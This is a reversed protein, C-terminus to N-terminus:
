MGFGLPALSTKFRVSLDTASFASLEAIIALKHGLVLMLSDPVYASNAEHFRYLFSSRAIFLFGTSGFDESTKDSFDLPSM